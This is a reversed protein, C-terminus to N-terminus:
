KMEFENGMIDRIDYGDIKKTFFIACNPCFYSKDWKNYKERWEQKIDLRKGQSIRKIYERFCVFIFIIGFTLLTVSKNETFVFMLISFPTGALFGTRYDIPNEWVPPGYLGIGSQKLSINEEKLYRQYAEKCNVTISFCNHTSNPCEKTEM